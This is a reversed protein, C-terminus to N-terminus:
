LDFWNRLLLLCSQLLFLSSLLCTGQSRFVFSQLEPSKKKELQSSRFFLCYFIRVKDCGTKDYVWICLYWRASCSLNALCRGGIGLKEGGGGEGGGGAKILLSKGLFSDLPLATLVVGGLLRPLSLRDPELPWLFALKGTLNGSEAKFQFMRLGRAFLQTRRRRWRWEWWWVM